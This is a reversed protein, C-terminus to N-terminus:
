LACRQLIRTPSSAQKKDVFRTILFLSLFLALAAVLLVQAITPDSVEGPKEGDQVDLLVEKMYSATANRLPDYSISWNDEVTLVIRWTGNRAFTYTIAEGEYEYVPAVTGPEYLLWIYNRIETNPDQDTNEIASLVVTENQYVQSVSSEVGISPAQILIFSETLVDVVPTNKHLMSARVTITHLGLALGTTNFTFNYAATEGSALSENVWSGLVVVNDRYLTLNYLDTISGGNGTVFRISANEGLIVPVCLQMGVPAGVELTAVETTDEPVFVGNLALLPITPEIGLREVFSPDPILEVYDLRLFVPEEKKVRFTFMLMTANRNPCNFSEVPYFWSSQSVAFTGATKNLDGQVVFLPGHLVGDPYNEVPTKVIHDVYELVGPNWSFRIEYGYLNGLSYNFRTGPERLERGPEWPYDTHYISNTLNFVNVSVNILAGGPAFSYEPDVYVIPMKNSPFYAKVVPVPAAFAALASVLVVAIVEVTLKKM